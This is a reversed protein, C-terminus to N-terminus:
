KGVIKIIVEIQNEIETKSLSGRNFGVFGNEGGGYFVTEEVIQKQYHRVLQKCGSGYYVMTDDSYILLQDFPYLRDTIPSFHSCRTKVVLVSAMRRAHKISEEAWLEDQFSVGQAARDAQRVKIIEEESAGYKELGGIYQRDNVAVLQQWRTLNVGLMFAVQELSSMSSSLSNHHDILVYNSPKCVDERLEVGVIQLDDNAYLKLEDDYASLLATDWTLNKDVFRVNHSQLLERITKMELDCGGLLFIRNM